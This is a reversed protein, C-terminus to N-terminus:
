LQSAMEQAPVTYYYFKTDVAMFPFEPPLVNASVEQFGHKEYFRHAALFRETTGLYIDRITHAQAWGILTMLLHHGVRYTAGRYERHVFMKRLAGQQAGLDLLAITGIIAGDQKAVWFNGANTQYFSPIQRLDPQDEPAIAIAYEDRQISVILDIVGDTDTPTFPAITIPIDQM